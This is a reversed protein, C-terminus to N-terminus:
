NLCYLFDFKNAFSEFNKKPPSSHMLITWKFFRLDNLLLDSKACNIDVFIVKKIERVISRTLIHGGGGGGGGGGGQGGGGGDLGGRIMCVGLDHSLVDKKQFLFEYYLILTYSFNKYM